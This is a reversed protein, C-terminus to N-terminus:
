LGEIVAKLMECLVCAKNLLDDRSVGAGGHEVMLRLERYEKLLAKDGVENLVRWYTDMRLKRLETLAKDVENDKIALQANYLTNLLDTLVKHRRKFEDLSAVSKVLVGQAEHNGASGLVVVVKDGLNESELVLGKRILTNAVGVPLEVPVNTPARIVTEGREKIGVIFTPGAASLRVTDGEKLERREGRGLKAGNIFTGNRSGKGTPGHDIVILREVGKEGKRVVLKAHRRSVTLSKFGTLSVEGERVPPSAPYILVDFPSLGEIIPTLARLDESSPRGLFYETRRLIFERDKGKVSWMLVYNATM